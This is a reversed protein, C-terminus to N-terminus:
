SLTWVAIGGFNLIVVFLGRKLYPHNNYYHHYTAENSYTVFFTKLNKGYYHPCTREINAINEECNYLQDVNFIKKQKQYNM